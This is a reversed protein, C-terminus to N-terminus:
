DPPYNGTGGPFGIGTGYDEMRKVQPDVMFLYWLSVFFGVNCVFIGVIILTVWLGKSKGAAEFASSPRKLVTVIAWVDVFLTFLGLAGLAANTSNMPM